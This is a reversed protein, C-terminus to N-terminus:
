KKEVFAIGNRERLRIFGHALYMGISMTTCFATKTYSGIKASEEDRRKWLLSYVGKGRFDKHVFDTKYRLKKGYLVFGVCGVLRDGVFAGIYATKNDDSLAVHEKSMGKLAEKIENYSVFRTTINM